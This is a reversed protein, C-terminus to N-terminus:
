RTKELLERMWALWERAQPYGLRELDQAVVAARKVAEREHYSLHLVQTESDPSLPKLKM